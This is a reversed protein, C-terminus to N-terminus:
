YFGLNTKFSHKGKNRTANDDRRTRFYKLYWSQSYRPPKKQKDRKTVVVNVWQM